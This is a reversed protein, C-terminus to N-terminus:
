AIRQIAQAFSDGLASTLHLFDSHAYVLHGSKAALCGNHEKHKERGL